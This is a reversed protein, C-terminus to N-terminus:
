FEFMLGLAAYAMLADAAAHEYRPGDASGLHRAASGDIEVFL